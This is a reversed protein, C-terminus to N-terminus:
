GAGRYNPVVNDAAIKTVDDAHAVIGVRVDELVQDNSIDTISDAPQDGFAPSPRPYYVVGDHIVTSCPDSRIPVVTGRADNVVDDDATGCEPHAVEIIDVRGNNLEVINVRSSTIGVRPQNCVQRADCTVNRSVRKKGALRAVVEM